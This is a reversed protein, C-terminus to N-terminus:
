RADPLPSIPSPLTRNLEEAASGCMLPTSEAIDQSGAYGSDVTIDPAAQNKHPPLVKPVDEVDNGPDALSM